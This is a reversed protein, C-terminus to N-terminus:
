SKGNRREAGLAMSGCYAQWILMQQQNSLLQCSKPLITSSSSRPCLTCPRPWLKKEGLACPPFGGAKCCCWNDKGISKKTKQRHIGKRPGGSVAISLQGITVKFKECQMEDSMFCQKSVQIQQLDCVTKLAALLRATWSYVQALLPLSFFNQTCMLWTCPMWCLM